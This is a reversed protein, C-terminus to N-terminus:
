PRAAAEVAFLLLDTGPPAAGLRRLMSAIQGRHYTSHNAAHLVLTRLPLTGGTGDMLTYRIPRALDDDTRARLWAAREREVEALASRLVASTPDAMWAPRGAPAEEKWRMLWVREAGVVHAVLGLLTPFAGGLDRRWEADPLADACALLRANAWDNYAFLEAAERATM